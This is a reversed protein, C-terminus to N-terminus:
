PRLGDREGGRQRDLPNSVLQAQRGMREFAPALNQSPRGRRSREELGRLKHFNCGRPATWCGFTLDLAGIAGPKADRVTIGRRRQDGQQLGEQVGM